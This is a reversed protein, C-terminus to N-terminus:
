APAPEQAPEEVPAPSPVPEELPAIEIEHETDPAGIDMLVEQPKGCVFFREREDSIRPL